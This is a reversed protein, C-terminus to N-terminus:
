KHIIGLLSVILKETINDRDRAPDFEVIETAILKSDSAIEALGQSLDKVHIGNPEPVDVGPAETPDIADLDLSIGYGITHATVHAVAEKLVTVFGRERVEDMFYIKVNLRKLFEAEGKEFSRVGIFCINEPKIKPADNLINTLSSYGHGLLCAAPMGHIRGSETTEPTHSDMHADIWILGIDGKHHLAHYVGSWTGIACTHDGGVVTFPSQKSTLESVAQALELCSQSTMDTVTKSNSVVPYIIADWQVDLSQMFPSNQMVVPGNGAHVDAGALGSAYGILHIKDKIMNVVRKDLTSDRSTM